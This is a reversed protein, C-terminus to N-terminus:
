RATGGVSGTLRAPDISWVYCVGHRLGAAWSDASPRIVTMEYSSVEYDIGVYAAFAQRCMADGFSILESDGPYPTGEPVRYEVIGIAEADHPQSCDVFTAILTNPEEDFCEGVNVDIVYSQGVGVSNALISQWGVLRFTAGSPVIALSVVAEGKEFDGVFTFASAHVVEGSFLEIEDRTYDYLDYQGVLPGTLATSYELMVDLGPTSLLEQHMYPLLGELTPQTFVTDLLMQVFESEADTPRALAPPSDVSCRTFFPTAAALSAPFSANVAAPAGPIYIQWTGQTLLGVMEPTCGSFELESVLDTSALPVSTVLLGAAGPVPIAGSFVIAQADAERPSAVVLMASIAVLFVPAFAYRLRTM